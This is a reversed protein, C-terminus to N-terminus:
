FSFYRPDVATMAFPNFLPTNTQQTPTFPPPQMTGGSGNMGSMLQSQLAAFMAPNALMQQEPTLFEFPNSATQNLAVDQMWQDYYASGPQPAGLPGATVPGGPRQMSDGEMNGYYTHRTGMPDLMGGNQSMYSGDAQRSNLDGAQVMAGTIPDQFWQISPDGIPNNVPQPALSAFGGSMEPNFGQPAFPTPSAAVPSMSMSPAVQQPALGGGMNQPISSWQASSPMIPMATNVPSMSFNAAGSNVPAAYNNGGSGGSGGSGANKAQNWKSWWDLGTSVGNVIQGFTSPGVTTEAQPTNIRQSQRLSEMLQAFANGQTQAQTGERQVGISQMAKNWDNVQLQNQLMANVDFQHANQNLQGGAQWAQQNGQAASLNQGRQQLQQAQNARTIEDVALGLQPALAARYNGEAVQNSTGLTQNGYRARMQAIDQASQRNMLAQMASANAEPNIINTGANVMQPNFGGSAILRNDIGPNNNTSNFYGQLSSPDGPRGSMMGQLIQSMNQNQNLPSGNQLWQMIGGGGMNPSGQPGQTLFNNLFQNYGGSLAQANPDGGVQGINPGFFSGGGGSGGQGIQGWFSGSNQPLGSSPAGPVQMPPRVPPGGLPPRVGGGVPQPSTPGNNSGGGIPM